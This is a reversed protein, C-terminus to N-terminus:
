PRNTNATHSKIRKSLLACAQNQLGDNKYFLYYDGKKHPASYKTYNWYDTLQNKIKDRFPIKDLYQNTFDIQDDVWTETESSTDNELWRYPDQITTGFYNDEQNVKKSEPYPMNMKQGFNSLAFAALLIATFSVKKM